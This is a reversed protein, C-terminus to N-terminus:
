EFRSFNFFIEKLIKVLVIKLYIEFEFKPHSCFNTLSASTKLSGYTKSRDRTYICLM